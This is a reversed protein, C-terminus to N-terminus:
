KEILQKWGRLKIHDIWCENVVIGYLGNKESNEIFQGEQGAWKGDGGNYKNNKNFYKNEQFRFKEYHEKLMAFCFGNLPDHGKKIQIGPRPQYALQSGRLVGNTLGSYLADIIPNNIIYEILINLTANFKLDDGCNIIIDCGESYAWHIGKNWAGTIGEIFQDEIKIMSLNSNPPINIPKPSGNDILYIHFDYNCNEYISKCFKNILDNGEPRYEDSWHATVVFGIKM